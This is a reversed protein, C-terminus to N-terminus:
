LGESVAILDALPANEILKKFWGSFLQSFFVHSVNAIVDSYGDVRFDPNSHRKSSVVYSYIYKDIASDFAVAFSLMKLPSKSYNTSTRSTPKSNFFRGLKEVDDPDAKDLKYSVGNNDSTMEFSRFKTMAEEKSNGILMALLQIAKQKAQKPDKTHLSIKRARQKGAVISTERFYYVGHRFRCLHASIRM